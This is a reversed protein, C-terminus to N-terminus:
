ISPLDSPLHYSNGNMSPPPLSAMGLMGDFSGRHPVHKVDEGLYNTTGNLGWGEFSNLLTAMASHTTSMSDSSTVSPHSSAFSEWRDDSHFMNGAGKPAYCHPPLMGAAAHMAHYGAQQQMAAVLQQELSPQMVQLLAPDIGANGCALLQEAAGQQPARGLNLAMNKVSPPPCPLPRGPPALGLKRAVANSMRPGGHGNLSPQENVPVGSVWNGNTASMQSDMSHRGGIVPASPNVDLSLRKVPLPSLPHSVGNEMATDKEVVEAAAPGNSLIAAKNPSESLGIGDQSSTQVVTPTAAPASTSLVAATYHGNNSGEMDSASGTSSTGKQSGLSSAGLLGTANNLQESRLSVDMCGANSDVRTPQRLDTVSHAFFCVPRRCHPGEKCLQTRYKAPHLWCEYVGHSYPCGDGRLCLGRKYDPCPVPLYDVFRPDRRRANETPHAFPCARWDHVYRKSCRTVKFHYMRFTDTSFEPANLESTSYPLSEDACNAGPYM